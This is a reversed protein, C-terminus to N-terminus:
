RIRFYMTFKELLYNVSKESGYRCLLHDHAFGQTASAKSVEHGKEQGQRYIERHFHSGGRGGAKGGTWIKKKKKEM